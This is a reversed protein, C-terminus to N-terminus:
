EEGDSPEEPTEPQEPENVEESPEEEEQPPANSEEEDNEENNPNEGNNGNNGENGENGNNGDNGNNGNNDNGNENNENENGDDPNEPTDEAPIDVQVSAPEGRVGENNGRQGIPTVQITYTQGPAAGSIEIGQSEVTQTQGNASVEFIAPPGNYSWNVDIIGQDGLYEASLGEVAPLSEEEAEGVTVTTTAPDSRSESDDNSVAIVQFQYEGSEVDSITMSQEETSSLTQMEGGNVSARVEFNVNNGNYNWTLNISNDEENYKGSLNTVPDLKDFKESTSSPENGKVFLETIIQSSPTYSSPLAPPNSGREVDVEVVSSPREFDPTEVDKSIETMVLRFLDRSIGTDSIPLRKNEESYEGTWVAITYNTTYGAFWSDAAEGTDPLNTTGTKGALPLGSVNARTGTGETVVDKLMDTVMYATYDSMAAESEPTLDVERGDPFEVKTVAYPENYIGENGFARYAGALGLPTTQMTGGGISDTLIAQDDPFTMGLNKAFEKANESGVEEFLKVAAVNISQVLAQRATVWGSHSRTVNNIVKDSGAIEYPKDDNIQHYTSIKNYEIAPGYALLPKATSGPQMSGQIAYNYQGTDRNRGGGIARIAGSNTDLVTLGAKFNENPYQIPNEESDTLLFEVYEQANTDITTHITLGDTNIDAGDLKESVEQEVKQIFADYQRSEPREETLLSTIDVQRAEEAQQETVKDHRVMLTLVTDMRDHMLDPNEFPNYASPRQPLGALIAAEALTLESLDEKGFYTESAKKVGYAGAGYYIKNLYMEMIQEKSYQRELQLALWAEQVKLSLKKEPTLFSKEVVQQTITSAGQSGFGSTFNAIVAGGIRRLDIGPHSFFRADETAIVADILVEPLEEYEVKDRNEAGLQAFEEGSQDLLTSAYASQLKEPDLDPATAIWYTILATMGIGILVILSLIIFVIRKWLPKKKTKKQKRRATRSQSNEAM